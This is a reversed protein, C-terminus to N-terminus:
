GGGRGGAGGKGADIVFFRDPVEHARQERGFRDLKRKIVVVGELIRIRPRRQRPAAALHDLDLCLHAHPQALGTPVRHRRRYTIAM